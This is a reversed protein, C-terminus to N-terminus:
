TKKKESNSPFSHLPLNNLSSKGIFGSHYINHMVTVKLSSLCGKLCLSSKGIRFIFLILTLNFLPSFLPSTTGTFYSISSLPTSFFPIYQCMSSGAAASVAKCLGSLFLVTLWPCKLTAVLNTVNNNHDEGLVSVLYEEERHFQESRLLRCNQFGQCCVSTNVICRM